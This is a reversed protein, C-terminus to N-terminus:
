SLPQNMNQSTVVIQNIVKEVIQLDLSHRTQLVVMVVAM